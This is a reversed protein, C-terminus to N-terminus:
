IFEYDCLKEYINGAVHNTIASVVNRRINISLPIRIVMCSKDIDRWFNLWVLSQIGYSTQFLMEGRKVRLDM